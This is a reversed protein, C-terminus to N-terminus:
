GSAGKGTSSAMIDDCARVRNEQVLATNVPVYRLLPLRNGWMTKGYGAVFYRGQTARFDADSGGRNVQFEMIGLIWPMLKYYVKDDINKRYILGKHSMDLLKAAVAPADESIRAALEGPTEWDSSLEAAYGAYEATFRNQLLDYEAGSETRPFGT